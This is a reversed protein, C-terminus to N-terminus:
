SGYGITQFYNLHELGLFIAALKMLNAFFIYIALFAQRSTSKAENQFCSQLIVDEGDFPLCSM